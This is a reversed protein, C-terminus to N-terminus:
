PDYAVLMQVVETVANELMGQNEQNAVTFHMRSLKGDNSIALNFNCEPKGSEVLKVLRM